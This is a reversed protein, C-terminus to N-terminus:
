NREPILFEHDMGVALAWLDNRHEPNSELDLLQNKAEDMTLPCRGWPLLFQGDDRRVSLGDHNFGLSLVTAM